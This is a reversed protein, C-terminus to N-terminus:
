FSQRAAAAALWQLFQPHAKISAFDADEAAFAAIEPCRRIALGLWQFARPMHGAILYYRSLAFLVAPENPSIRNAEEMATVARDIKGLRRYCEATAMLVPLADPREALARIYASIAEAWRELSRYADGRLQFLEFRHRHRDKVAALEALAHDPMGLALYGRAAEIRRRTQLVSDTTRRSSKGAAGATM